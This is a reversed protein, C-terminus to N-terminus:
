RGHRRHPAPRSPSVPSAAAPRATTRPARPPRSDACAPCPPAGRARARPASRAPAPRGRTPRRGRGAAAGPPRPSLRPAPGHTPPQPPILHRRRPNVVQRRFEPDGRLLEHAHELLQVDEHAAVQRRELGLLHRQHAGAPLALLALQLLRRRRRLPAAGDLRGLRDGDHRFRTGLAAATGRGLHGGGLGLRLGLGRDFRLALELRPFREFRRFDDLLLLRREFLARGRQELVERDGHLGRPLWLRGRREGGRSRSRGDGGRRGGGGGGGGGLGTIGVGARGLGTALAVGPPGTGGGGGRGTAEAAGPAMGSSSRRRSFPFFRLFPLFDSTSWSATACFMERVRADMLPGTPRLPTCRRSSPGLKRSRSSCFRRSSFSRSFVSTRTVSNMVTESSAFMRFTGALSITLKSKLSSPCITVILWRRSKSIISSMADAKPKWATRSSSYARAADSSCGFSSAPSRLGRAGTTVTM